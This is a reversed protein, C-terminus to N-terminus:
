VKMPSYSNEGENDSSYRPTDVKVEQNDPSEVEFELNSSSQYHPLLEPLGPSLLDPSENSRRTLFDSSENSRRSLM